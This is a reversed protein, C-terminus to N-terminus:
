SEKRAGCEKKSNEEAGAPSIIRKTADTRKSTPARRNLPWHELDLDFNLTLTLSLIGKEVPPVGVSKSM